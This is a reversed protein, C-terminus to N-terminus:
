YHFICRAFYHQHRSSALGTAPRDSFIQRGRPTLPRSHCQQRLRRPFPDIVDGSSTAGGNIHMGVHTDLLFDGRKHIRSYATEAPELSGDTVRAGLDNGGDCVTFRSLEGSHNV